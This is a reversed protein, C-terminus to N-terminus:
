LIFLLTAFVRMFWSEIKFYAKEKETTRRYIEYVVIYRNIVSLFSLGSYTMAFVAPKYHCRVSATSPDMKAKGSGGLWYM